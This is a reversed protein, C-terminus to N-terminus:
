FLTLIKPIEIKKLKFFSSDKNKGNNTNFSFIYQYLNGYYNAFYIDQQSDMSMLSSASNSSITTVNGTSIIVIIIIQSKFIYQNFFYFQNSCVM